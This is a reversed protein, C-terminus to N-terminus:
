LLWFELKGYSFVAWPDWCALGHASLHDSHTLLGTVLRPLRVRMIPDSSILHLDRVLGMLTRRNAYLSRLYMDRM